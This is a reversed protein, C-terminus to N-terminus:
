WCTYGGDVTVVSGTMYSSAPSALFVVISAVEDPQGARAMPTLEMWKAAMVPDDVMAYKTMETEIYGPAVANVRVGRAAWEAGTSRVLHHVAAKSANYYSQNQPRNSIDGSISGIAVISGKGARLMQAGFARVTYLVGYFNTNMVDAVLDDGAAEAATGSRAIGANAVVVDLPGLREALATAAVSDTVDLVHWESSHGAAALDAAVRQLATADRSTLIVHAGAQALARASALGIGKSAGTVLARQGTLSFRDLIGGM